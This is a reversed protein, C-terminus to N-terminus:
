YLNYPLGKADVEGSDVNARIDGNTENYVWGFPGLGDAPPAKVATQGMADGHNSKYVRQSSLQIRTTSQTTAKNCAALAAITLTTLIISTLRQMTIGEDTQDGRQLPVPNPYGLSRDTRTRYRLILM